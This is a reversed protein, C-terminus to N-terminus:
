SETETFPMEKIILNSLKRVVVQDGSHPIKHGRLANGYDDFQRLKVVDQFLKTSTSELDSGVKNRISAGPDTGTGNTTNHCLPNSKMTQSLCKYHIPEFGGRKLINEYRKLIVADGVNEVIHNPIFSLDVDENRLSDNTTEDCNM